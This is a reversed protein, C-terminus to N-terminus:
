VLTASRSRYVVCGSPDLVPSHIRHVAIRMLLDKNASSGEVNNNRGFHEPDPQSVAGHCPSAADQLHQEGKKITISYLPVLVLLWPQSVFFDNLDTYCRHVLRTRLSVSCHFCSLVWKRGVM